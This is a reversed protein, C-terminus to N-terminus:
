RTTAERMRASRLTVASTASRAKGITNAAEPDPNEPLVNKAEVVLKTLSEKQKANLVPHDAVTKQIEALEAPNASLRAKTLREQIEAIATLEEQTGQTLVPDSARAVGATKLALTLQASRVKDGSSELAKALRSLTEKDNTEMAMKIAIDMINSAKTAKHSRHLIREGEAFQFALDALTEANRSRWATGLLELDVYRDFTPDILDPTVGVVVNHEVEAAPKILNPPPPEAPPPNTQGWSMPSVCLLAALVACRAARTWSRKMLARM